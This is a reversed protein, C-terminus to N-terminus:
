ISRRPMQSVKCKSNSEVGVKNSVVLPTNAVVDQLSRDISPTSTINDLSFNHAGGGQAKRGVTVTAEGLNNDKPQMTVNLPLTVGLELYIKEFTHEGYGLYTYTITYPGGTRMGQITFRGDKNTTAAYRTGSPTHVASVTCGMLPAHSEDTVQGALSSTTVQAHACVAFAPATLAALMLKTRYTM